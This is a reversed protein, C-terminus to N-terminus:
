AIRAGPFLSAKVARVIGQDFTLIGEKFRQALRCVVLDFFTLVSPIRDGEMRKRVDELDNLIEVTDEVTLVHRIDFPGSAIAEMVERADTSALRTALVNCFEIWIEWPILLRDGHLPRGAAENHWRDAKDILALLFSTDIVTV